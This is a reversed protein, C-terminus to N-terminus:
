RVLASLLLIALSATVVGTIACKWASFREVAYTALATYIGGLGFIVPYLTLPMWYVLTKPLPGYALNLAPVIYPNFFGMYLFDLVAAILWFPFFSFAFLALYQRFSIKGHFILSLLKGVGAMALWLLMMGPIISIALFLRYSELPIPVFPALTQEGWTALWVQWDTPPPPYAKTLYTVLYALGLLIAFGLVFGLSPRLDADATIEESTQRPHM